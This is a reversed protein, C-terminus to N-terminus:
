THVGEEMGTTERGSPEASGSGVKSIGGSRYLRDHYKLNKKAKVGQRCEVHEIVSRWETRRKHKVKTRVRGM